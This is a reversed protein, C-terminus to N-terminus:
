VQARLMISINNLVFSM